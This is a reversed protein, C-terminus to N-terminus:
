RGNVRLRFTDFAADIEGRQRAVLAADAAHPAIPRADVQYLVNQFLLVKNERDGRARVIRIRTGELEDHGSFGHAIAFAELRDGVKNAELQNAGPMGRVTGSSDLVHDYPNDKGDRLVECFAHVRESTLWPKGFDFMGDQAKARAAATALEMAERERERDRRTSCAALVVGLWVLWRMERSLTVGRPLTFMVPAGWGVCSSM